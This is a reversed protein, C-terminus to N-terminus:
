KWYFGSWRHNFNEDKIEKMYEKLTPLKKDKESLILNDITELPWKINIDQDNWIIGRDYAPSYENHSVKYIIEAENSLTLFGHAFGPPIWLMLKNEESLEIGVWKKFYPSDPRIDVAVDFIKGKICRVLKGQEYPKEQFHLGRLVGKVSKSHNDQVFEVNLGAKEFDSKKYFELFFGRADEFVKPKVIKVEPIETDIIEFPM